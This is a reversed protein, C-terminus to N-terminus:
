ANVERPVRADLSAVLSLPSEDVMNAWELLPIEGQTEDGFFIVREGASVKSDEVDVVLVDMAVRGVISFRQSSGELTVQARNGAKRPLGHGYGLAVLVLTTACVTRYTHGYSVGAGAPVAKVSLVEASLRIPRDPLSSVFINESDSDDKESRLVKAQFASLQLSRAATSM